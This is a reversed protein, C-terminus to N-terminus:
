SMYCGDCLSRLFPSIGKLSRKLKMPLRDDIFLLRGRYRVALDPCLVEFMEGDNMLFLFNLGDRICWGTSEIYDYEVRNRISMESVQSICSMSFQQHSSCDILVPSERSFWCVEKDIAKCRAELGGIAEYLFDPVAELYTKEGSRRSMEYKGGRARLTLEKGVYVFGGSFMYYFKNGDDDIIIKPTKERMAKVHATLLGLTKLQGNTIFAPEIEESDVYVSYTFEEGCLCGLDGHKRGGGHRKGRRADIRISGLEVSDGAKRLVGYKTGREFGPLGRFDECRPIFRSFSRHMLAESADARKSEDRELLKELLDRLEESCELSDLSECFKKKTLLVYFVVGASWMDVGFSYKKGDVVEPALYDMTGCFESNNEEVYCSLGFDCIKVTNGKLLINGLKLDRHIIGLSHIHRLGCLIMRLIKLAVDEDVEYENLFSVLNFDCLEEVMYVHKKSEFRGVIGVINEHKITSLMEIERYVMGTSRGKRPVVKVAVEEGRASVGSYVTSSAGEGIVQRLKYREM